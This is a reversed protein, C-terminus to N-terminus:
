YEVISSTLSVTVLRLHEIFVDCTKAVGADGYDALFEISKSNSISVGSLPLAGHSRDFSYAVVKGGQDFYNLYAVGSPTQSIDKNGVTALVAQYYEENNSTVRDQPYNQSGYRFTYSSVNAGEASNEDEGIANIKSNPRTKTKVALVQNINRKVSISASGTVNGDSVHDHSKFLYRLGEKSALEAVKNSIEDNIDCTAVKVYMENVVLNGAGSGIAKFIEANKAFTLELEMSSVLQPPLLEDENFLASLMHMPIIFQFGSDLFSGTIEGRWEEVRTDEQEMGLSEGITEQFPKSKEWRGRIANLVNASDLRELEKGDKTRLVISKFFNCAGASNRGFSLYDAGANYVKNALECDVVLYCHKGKVFSGGTNFIRKFTKGEVETGEKIDFREKVFNNSTCQSLSSPLSYDLKNMSMKLGSLKNSHEM